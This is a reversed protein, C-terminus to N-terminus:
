YHKMISFLTKQTKSNVKSSSIPNYEHSSMKRRTLLHIIRDTNKPDEDLLKLLENFDAIENEQLDRHFVFSRILKDVNLGSDIFSVALAIPLICRSLVSMVLPSETIKGFLHGIILIMDTIYLSSYIADSAASILKFPARLLEERTPAKDFCLVKIEHFIENVRTFIGFMSFGQPIVHAAPSPNNDVTGM